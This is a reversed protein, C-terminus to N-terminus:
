EQGGHQRLLEAIDNQHNAAAGHLPTWGHDDKANVDAHNALLMEVVDKHGWYAALLLPTEGFSDKADVDAHNALLLGAVDKEDEISAAAEHLPTWGENDRANVEAKSTLLLKAVDKFGKRVAWHLPTKGYKDKSFLLDPNDKLLEKVKSVDGHAAADHIEGCFALSNWALVFLAVLTLAAQHSVPFHYHRRHNPTEWFSKVGQSTNRM